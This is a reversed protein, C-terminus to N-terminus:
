NTSALKVKSDLNQQNSIDDSLVFVKQPSGEDDFETQRNNFSAVNGGGGDEISGSVATGGGTAGASSLLKKAQAINAIVTAVTSLIAVLNAPYPLSSASAVGGSIARATDIGLQVVALAKRIKERKKEDKVFANNISNLLDVGAQYRDIQEQRAQDEKAIRDLNDALTKDKLAEEEDLIGQLREVEMLRAEEEAEAVEAFFDDLETKQATELEKILETDQGYKEVLADRERQHSLIMEELARANEDKINQIKLNEIEEELDRKLDSAEKEKRLAEADAKDKERQAQERYKQANARRKDAEQKADANWQMRDAAEQEDREKQANLRDAKEQERFLKLNIEADKVLLKNNRMLEKVAEVQQNYDELEEETVDGLRVRAQIEALLGKAKEDALRRQVKASKILANLTDEEIKKTDKGWIKRKKLEFDLAKLVEDNRLKEASMLKDLEERRKQSSAIIKEDAEVQANAEDSAMIGLAQLGDIVLDIIFQFPKMAFKILDMISGGLAVFGAILGTVAIVIIAIPNASMVANLVAQAGSLVGTAIAGAKEVTSKVATRFASEKELLIRTQQVANMVTMANKVNSISQVLADNEAGLLATVGTFSGYGAVVGSSITLASDLGQGKVKVEEVEEGVEEVADRVELVDQVSDGTNVELGIIVEEKIEAM